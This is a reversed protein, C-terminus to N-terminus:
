VDVAGALVIPGAAPDENAKLFDYVGQITTVGYLVGEIPPHNPLPCDPAADAAEKNLYSHIFFRGYKVSNEGEIIPTNQAYFEGIRHYTAAVGCPLM